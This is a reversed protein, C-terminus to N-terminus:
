RVTFNIDVIFRSKQNMYNIHKTHTVQSKKDYGYVVAKNWAM